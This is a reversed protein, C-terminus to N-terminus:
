VTKRPNCNLSAGVPARAYEAWTRASGKLCVPAGKRRRSAAPRGELFRLTQYVASLDWDDSFNLKFCVFVSGLAMLVFSRRKEAM